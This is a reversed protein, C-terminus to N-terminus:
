KQQELAEVVGVYAPKRQYGASNTWLGVPQNPRWNSGSAQDTPSRFTIGARQNAPIVSFYTQVFWKYMEAQQQYLATTAQNTTTGTGIDFSIKILKDTAALQQLASEIKEKNDGVNLSLETAIGDVAAGKDETYAIFDVLGQIKAPNDVLNTETFFIPDSANAYQKIKGIAINAYDKGLYDQWYFTNAPLEEMDLSSRLESPNDDDMPQYVVSWSKVTGNGAEVIAKIWKDLEVSIIEKKEAPTKIITEGTVEWNMTVNDILYDGSGTESGVTLVFQTWEKQAPTLNLTAIPLEILGRGWQGDPVGFSAPSGYNGLTVSGTNASIALRMGAGYFGCCGGGKFDITVNLYDGLKRGEPLTIQFQPYSRPGKVNLAHGSKGDPDAVVRNTGEGLMTFSKDLEDDEFNVVVDKGSEGPIIIDAILNQLYDAGQNEHWVLHGVHTSLETSAQTEMATSFDSVSISGDDQLADVHRLDNTLSIQHFHQQTLRYLVSNSLLDAASLEASLRFHPQGTDDVYSKLERYADLTEQDIIHQPKDVFFGRTEFETCSQFLATTLFCLLFCRCLHKNLTNM